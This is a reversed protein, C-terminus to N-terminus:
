CAFKKAQATCAPGKSKLATKYLSTGHECPIYTNEWVSQSAVKQTVTCCAGVQTYASTVQVKADPCSKFFSEKMTKLQACPVAFASTRCFAADSDAVCALAVLAILAIAATKM